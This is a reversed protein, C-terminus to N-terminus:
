CFSAHDVGDDKKRWCGHICPYSNWYLVRIALGALIFYFIERWVSEGYQQKAFDAKFLMILCTAQIVRCLIDFGVHAAYFNMTARRDYASCENESSGFCTAFMWSGATIVVAVDMIFSFATFVAAVHFWIPNSCEKDGNAPCAGTALFNGYLIILLM